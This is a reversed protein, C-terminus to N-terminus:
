PHGTRNAPSHPRSGRHAKSARTLWTRSGAGGGSQPHRRSTLCQTALASGAPEPQALHRTGPCGLRGDGADAAVARGAAAELEVQPFHELLPVLLAEQSATDAVTLAAKVDTLEGDKPRNAVRGELARAISAAQRIAPSLASVFDRPLPPDQMALERAKMLLETLPTVPRTASSKLPARTQGILSCASWGGFSGYLPGSM